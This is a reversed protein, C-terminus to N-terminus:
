SINDDITRSRYHQMAYLSNRSLAGYGFPYLDRRGPLGACGGLVRREDDDGGYPNRGYGAREYKSIRAGGKSYEISQRHLGRHKRRKEM